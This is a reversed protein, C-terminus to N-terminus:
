LLQPLQALKQFAKGASDKSESLDHSLIDMEYEADVDAWDWDIEDSQFRSDTPNNVSVLPKWGKPEMPM